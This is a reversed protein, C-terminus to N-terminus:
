TSRFSTAPDVRLARRAPGAVAALGAALVLAAAALVSVPDRPPVGFVLSQMAAAVLWSAAAGTVAGAAVPGAGRMAALRLIAVPPAGLAIRIALERRRAALAFAVIGYVGVGALALATAAFAGLLFLNFRRPALAADVRAHMPLATGIPQSPDMARVVSRIAALASESPLGTRAVITQVLTTQPFQELPYYVAARVPQDPGAQRVDGAVGVVTAVYPSGWDRMEITRGIPDIGAPWMTRAATENVVAVPRSGARDASTIARGRVIPIRLADFLGPTATIVDPVADHDPVGDQAIVTTAATPTLPLAGTVALREFGPTAALRDVAEGYFQAHAAAGRYKAGPLSLDVTVVGTDFGLRVQSVALLSRGLLAAGFLLVVTLAVEAGVLVTRLGSGAPTDERSRLAAAADRSSSRIAPILGFILSAIVSLAIGFVILWPEAHVDSVRPLSPPLVGRLATVGWTGLLAGATGGIAGLMAAEIALQRILAARPAGLASRLSLERGRLSGEMLLLGAVNAFAIVLLVAVAGWLVLLSTRVAQVVRERLPTIRLGFGAGADASTRAITAAVADLEASARAGTVDPRLRGIVTLLRTRRSTMLPGGEPYPVWVDASGPASAPVDAIGVLTRPTGGIRVSRGIARPDGAFVRQWVARSIFVAPDSGALFDEDAALRGAVPRVGLVRFYDRTITTAVAQVAERDDSGIAVPGMRFGAVADFTTAAARVDVFTAGTVNSIGTAHREEIRVLRDPHPLPLPALLIGWILAFVITNGAIALAITAAATVTFGPRAVLLRIGHRTDRLITM